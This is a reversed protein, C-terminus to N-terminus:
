AFDWYATMADIGMENMLPIIAKGQTQTTIFTGHFTDGCDLFITNPNETKIKDVLTKIRSYGGAEKVKIGDNEFFIENYPEIHGHVDNIQIITLKKFEM